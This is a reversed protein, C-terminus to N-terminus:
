LVIGRREEIARAAILMREEISPRPQQEREPMAAWEILLNELHKANHAVIELEAIRKELSEFVQKIIRGDM